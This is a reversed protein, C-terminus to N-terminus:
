AYAGVLRFNSNKIANSRAEITKFWTTETTIGEPNLINIGFHYGANDDNKHYRGNRKLGEWSQLEIDAM